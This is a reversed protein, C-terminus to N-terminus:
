LQSGIRARWDDFKGNCNKLTPWILGHGTHGNRSSSGVEQGYSSYLSGMPNKAKTSVMFLRYEMNASGEQNISLHIITTTDLKNIARIV